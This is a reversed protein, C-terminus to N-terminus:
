QFKAEQDYDPDQKEQQHIEVKAKFWSAFRSHQFKHDDPNRRETKRQKWQHVMQDM